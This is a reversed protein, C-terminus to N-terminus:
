RSTWSPSVFAILCARAALGLDDDAVAVAVDLERDRVVAGAVAAAVAAAVSQDPHALPDGDVPALEFRPRQRGAAVPQM